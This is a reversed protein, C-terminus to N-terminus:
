VGQKEVTDVLRGWLIMRHTYSIVPTCTVLTLMHTEGEQLQCVWSDGPGVIQTKYIEYTYQNNIDEIIVEDGTSVKDLHRFPHMRMANRHGAIVCNGEQGPYATGAMHGVGYMLEHGTGEVLNESIGLKPLKFTGLQNLQINPLPALLDGNLPLNDSPVLQPQIDAPDILVANELPEPDPLEQTVEFGMRQWVLRWPYSTAEYGIGIVALVLGLAILTRSMYKRTKRKM